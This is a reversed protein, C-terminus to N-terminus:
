LKDWIDSLSLEKIMPSTIDKLLIFRIQDDFRKKDKSIHKIIKNNDFKNNDFKKEIHLGILEFLKTTRERISPDIKNIDESIELAKLIGIAVANGHSLNYITEIAHGITHGFNLIQRTSSDYEDKQVISSKILISRHIIEEIVPGINLIEDIKQEFLDFLTGDSILGLKIIEVLGSRYEEEPLTKLFEFDLGIFDPQKVTGIQNKIGRFNVGNKGGISADAMAVISTPIFGFRLGRKFTSAAFGTIDTVVGGGIGVLQYSRDVSLDILKSYIDEIVAMTKSQEGATIVITRNSDFSYIDNINKDTIIVFNKDAIVEKLLTEYKGTFVSTKGSSYILENVKM